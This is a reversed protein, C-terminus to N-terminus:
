EKEYVAGKGTLLSQASAVKAADADSPSHLLFYIKKALDGTRFTYQSFLIVNGRYSEQGILTAQNAADLLNEVASSTLRLADSLQEAVDSREQPRQSIAESAALVAVEESTPSAEDFLQATTELVVRTTAGLVSVSGDTGVDVRGAD